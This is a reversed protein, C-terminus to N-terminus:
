GNSNGTENSLIAVATSGLNKGYPLGGLGTVVFVVEVEM